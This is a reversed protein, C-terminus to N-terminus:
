VSRRCRSRLSRVAEITIAREPHLWALENMMKRASQGRDIQHITETMSPPKPLEGSTRMRSRRTHIAAATSGTADAVTEISAGCRILATALEGRDESLHADDLLAFLCRRHLHHAIHDDGTMAASAALAPWSSRPPRSVVRDVTGWAPLEVSESGWLVEVVFALACPDRSEISINIRPSMISVWVPPGRLVLPPDPTDVARTKVWGHDDTRAYLM